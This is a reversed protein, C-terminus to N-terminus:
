HLRQDIALTHTYQNEMARLGSQGFFMAVRDSLNHTPRDVISSSGYQSFVDGMEYSTLANIRLQIPADSVLSIASGRQCYTLTNM